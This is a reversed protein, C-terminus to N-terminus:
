TIMKVAKLDSRTFICIGRGEKDSDFNQFIEYRELRVVSEAYPDKVETLLITYPSYEQLSIQLEHM